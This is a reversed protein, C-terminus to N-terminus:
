SAEETEGSPRDNPPTPGCDLFVELAHRPVLIRRGARVHGLAGTRVLEYCLSRGITLLAAAEEVTLVLKRASM